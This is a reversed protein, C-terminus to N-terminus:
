MESKYHTEEIHYFWKTQTGETNDYRHHLHNPADNRGPLVMVTM